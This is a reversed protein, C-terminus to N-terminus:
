DPCTSIEPIKQPRARCSIPLWTGDERAMVVAEKITDLRLLQSEIEELEIRFGRLKIQRDIRGLFEINGDPLWRGLDGSKYMKEDPIFPNATFKEQTLEPRNLYGRAVGTGSICIEGPAGIPQLKSNKGTIYVMYGAISKGLLPISPLDGTCRCYTACVTTETPGYTNYINGSNVLRDVHERKLVDGGSIFTHISGIGKMKNLENLVLPTCSVLTISNVEMFRHLLPIDMIVDRPPIVLKGGRLLVPYFEEVFADFSYSAQQIVVDRSTLNFERNFAAAYAIVSRHEIGVGKPKGTTGSTYIIYAMDGATDIRELATGITTYITEEDVEIREGNFDCKNKTESHTLLINVGSDKLIFSIRSAPYDVDIPLYAGGAKLIGWIATVMDISPRVMIGVITGTSVGKERLHGAFRDSRENLQGYTVAQCGMGPTYRDRYIVATYDPVEAAQEEFLRNLTVDGPIAPFERSGRPVNNFDFVLQQKEGPSLLSIECIRIGPERTLDEFLHLLCDSMQEIYCTDYIGSHYLITCRIREDKRIFSFVIRDRVAEINVANHINKLECLIKSINKNAPIRKLNVLYEVLEDSPYDQNEYGELASQRVKFLFEKFTMGEEINDRIFIFNNLTEETTRSEYVPSIVTVDEGGNYRHILVKIGALLIIYLSIDSKKSVKTLWSNLRAPFFITKKKVKEHVSQAGKYEIPIGTEEIEGSLKNMWYEKHKIFKSDTLFLNRETPDFVNV